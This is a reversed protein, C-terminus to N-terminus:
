PKRSFYAKQRYWWSATLVGVLLGLVACMVGLPTQSARFADRMALAVWLVLGGFAVWWFAYVRRRVAYAAMALVFGTAGARVSSDIIAIAVLATAIAALLDRTLRM